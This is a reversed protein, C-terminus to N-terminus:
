AQRTEVLLQPDQIEPVPYKATLNQPPPPLWAYLSDDDTDDGSNAPPPDDREPETTLGNGDPESHNQNTDSLDMRTVENSINVVDKNFDDENLNDDDVHGINSNQSHPSNTSSDGFSGSVSSDVSDSRTHHRINFLQATRCQPRRQFHTNLGRRNGFEAQCHHCQIIAITVILLLFLYSSPLLCIM